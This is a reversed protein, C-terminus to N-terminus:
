KRGYMHGLCGRGEDGRTMTVLYSWDIKSAVGVAIDVDNAGEHSGSIM